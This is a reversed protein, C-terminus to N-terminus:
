RTAGGGAVLSREASRRGRREGIRWALDALDGPRRVSAARRALRRVRAAFAAASRSGSSAVADASAAEENLGRAPGPSTLTAGSRRLAEVQAAHRAEVRVTGEAYSRAQRYVARLGDRKRRHVVADVHRLSYGSLQARLCLDVDECTRLSEDFGDLARFVRARIGLNCSAGAPLEPFAALVIHGSESWTVSARNVANLRENELRGAVVDDDALAAVMGEVWTEGVVDDADCFLLLSGRAEGGGVNRAAAPGRVASADVWRLAEWRPRAEDDPMEDDTAGQEASRGAHVGAEQWTRVVDVTADTSGNDCVLVEFPVSTTQDALAALQEGLTDGANWAPIVVSAVPRRLAGQGPERGPNAPGTM